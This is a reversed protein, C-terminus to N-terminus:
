PRNLLTCMQQFCGQAIVKAKYKLTNDLRIISLLNKFESIKKAINEPTELGTSIDILFINADLHQILGSIKHEYSLAIFPVNNNIAFVVSHYRAGVMLKSKAIISQQVDSSYTDPIVIIRHNDLVSKLEKFFCIDDGVDNKYNFTQPLLVIKESPYKILLIKLIEEFFASVKEKTLRNKYYYHWILLNPVCVIYDNGIQNQIEKPINVIPSDLFATDVTSYYKLNLSKAFDETKKDRISLFRFYNIMELSRKKFQKNKFTKTPFPGFSRGYYFLTKKTFKTIYLFFLHKWNQFGGMCIGGPACIVYDANKYIKILNRITSNLYWLFPLRLLTGYTALLNFIFRHNSEINIYNVRTDDVQFQRISDNDADTFLVNVNINPYEKILTRILAKHAAEDGRNNLPQNILLVNM